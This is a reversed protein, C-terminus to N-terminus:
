ISLRATVIDDDSFLDGVEVSSSRDFNEVPGYRGQIMRGQIMTTKKPKLGEMHHWGRGWALVKELSESRYSKSTVLVKAQHVGINIAWIMLGTMQVTAHITVITHPEEIFKM